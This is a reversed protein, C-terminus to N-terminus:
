KAKNGDRDDRRPGGQGSRPRDGRREEREEFKSYRGPDDPKGRAWAPTFDFSGLASLDLAGEGSNETNEESM